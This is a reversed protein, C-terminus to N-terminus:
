TSDEDIKGENEEMEENGEGVYIIMNNINM